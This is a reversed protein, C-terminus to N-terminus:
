YNRDSPFRILRHLSSPGKRRLTDFIRESALEKLFKGRKEENKIEKMAKKRMKGLFRLYFTFEHGYLKELEKRIAKAVAPSKGETSIAITLCGRKLISPAIFNGEGPKDIVNILQESGNRIQGADRAIKKNTKDSSTGAIVIFADKIDGKRYPRRIHQLLKKSRLRELARTIDPSIVKVSAGAKILSLVKREAVKGGGIVVAKKANLNLFVPYHKM